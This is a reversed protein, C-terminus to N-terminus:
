EGGTEEEVEINTRIMCNIWRVIGMFIYIMVLPFFVLEKFIVILIISGVLYSLKLINAIGKKFSFKPLSDYELTSVMLFCLLLILPVLFPKFLVQHPLAFPIYDNVSFLIFSAIATASTPIPLGIFGRKEFGTIEVNFRALRISGFLLPLFSLVVGFMEFQFFYLKYLLVSPAVGFSVVDALSDFEIGFDSYTKTMRAIKGDLTDFISALVILWAATEMLPDVSVKSAEARLAYIIALFGFFINLATFVNPIIIKKPKSKNAM